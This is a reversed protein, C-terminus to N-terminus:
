NRKTLKIEGLDSTKGAEPKIRRNNESQFVGGTTSFTVEYECGGTIYPHSFRGDTRSQVANFSLPFIGAANANVVIGELGIGRDDVVRGTLTACPELKVTMERPRNGPKLEFYKGLKRDRNLIWVRRTEGPALGRVEAISDMERDSGNTGESLINLGWCGHVPQGERDVLRLRVSEGPVLALDCTAERADAPPNIEKIANQGNPSLFLFGFTEYLGDKVPVRIDALGIDRLYNARLASVGVLAPGPLGPIRFRGDADTWYRVNGEMRRRGNSRDFEPLSFTFPNRLVPGYQVFAHAIPKGTIKDTVRGQIWVARHLQVDVTVARLGTREPVIPVERVLYAQDDSPCIQILNGKGEPMGRLEYHGNSDTKVRLVDNFFGSALFQDSEVTVGPVPKGTAADRITGVIPRTPLATLIFEAAFIQNTEGRLPRPPLHPVISRTAVQVTTYAITPGQFELGVLREAGLGSLSFRGDAATTTPPIGGAVNKDVM